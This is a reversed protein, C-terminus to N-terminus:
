RADAEKSNKEEIEQEIKTQLHALFTTKRVDEPKGAQRELKEKLEDLIENVSREDQRHESNDQPAM